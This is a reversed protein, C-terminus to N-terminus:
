DDRSEPGELVARSEGLSRGMEDRWEVNGSVSSGLVVGAATSPSSCLTDDRLVFWSDDLPDLAGRNTLKDRIAKIGGPISATEKRRVSSGAQLVWDGEGTVYANAIAGGGRTIQWKTRTLDFAAQASSADSQADASIFAGFAESGIRLFEEMDLQYYAAECESAMEEVLLHHARRLPAYADSDDGAVESYDWWDKKLDATVLVVKGWREARVHDLVQSWLIYDGYKESGSKGKGKSVESSDSDDMFGPPIQSNYRKEGQKHLQELKATSYPKGVVLGGEGLRYLHAVVEDDEPKVSFRQRSDQEAKAFVAEIQDQIMAFQEFLESEPESLEGRRRAVWEEVKRNLGRVDKNLAKASVNSRASGMAVSVRNRWFESMVQHPIFLRNGIAELLTIWDKMVEQRWQYLNLLINTDVVVLGSRLADKVMDDNAPSWSEFGKFIPSSALSEIDIHQPALSPRSSASHERDNTM